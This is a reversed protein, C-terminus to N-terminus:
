FVVGTQKSIQTLDNVVAQILPVGEISRVQEAEREPDGPILVADHGPAPKTKRFVDIWQDIRKKFVDVDEFGNIDMAGFFHGIGKGVSEKPTEEFLAFPPAFPGWNAGSLVCTLIDVMASLAYGKHGGQERTSGLPLLGGAYVDEPNTTSNGLGDIMWGEPVKKGQRKAQEIKGFAVVSTALDIVIPPNKFGPFAISIPNTGLMREAGWLPVVIKSSNTMSWGIMDRELAQLSYYSAIGYHNTNCVSVWGSGFEAAKDMAIKNAKPGVVLGLGSDGDVTAVSKRERLIKINPTPNIRGISFMDVYTKLRAVGHTDIGRVDAKSLVDAAQWADEDNLKFHKFVKATFEKLYAAPYTTYKPHTM